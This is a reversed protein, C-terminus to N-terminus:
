GEGLRDLLGRWAAAAVQPVLGNGGLHLADALGAPPGDAVRRVAPKPGGQAIWEAWGDADHRMPPWPRDPGAHEALQSERGDQGQLRSGAPDAATRGTEAVARGDEGATAPGHRPPGGIGEPDAVDQSAGDALDARDTRWGHPGEDGPAGRTIEPRRTGNPHGLLWFRQRKHPAGAAAASLCSWEADFGLDALDALVCALWGARVVDPVNELFVYRPGVEAIIRRAHPWLHREDDLGARAGAASFPQCPLGGTVIDVTGAWASGDFTTLDSWVPCEDLLGEQMRAVLVAAAYADREVHCVTRAPVGALRLGLEFGAYGSCLALHNLM